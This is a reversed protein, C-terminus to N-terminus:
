KWFKLIYYILNSEYNDLLTAVFSLYHYTSVNEKRRKREEKRGEEREEKWCINVSHVGHVLCQEVYKQYILSCFLSKQCWLVKMRISCSLCYFLLITLLIWSFHWQFTSIQASKWTVILSRSIRPLLTGPLPFQKSVAQAFARLCFHTASVSFTPPPPPAPWM